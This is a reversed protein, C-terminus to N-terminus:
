LTGNKVHSSITQKIVGYFEAAASMSVFSILLQGYKSYSGISVSNAKAAAEIGMRHSEPSFAPQNAKYDILKGHLITVEKPSLM